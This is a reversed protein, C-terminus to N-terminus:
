RCQPMEMARAQQMTTKQQQLHAERAKSTRARRAWDRTCGSLCTEREEATELALHQRRCARDRALRQERGEARESARRNRANETSANYELNHYRYLTTESYKFSLVVLSQTATWLLYRQGKLSGAKRKRTARPCGRPTWIFYLLKYAPGFVTGTVYLYIYFFRGVSVVLNAREREGIVHLWLNHM